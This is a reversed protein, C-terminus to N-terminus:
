YCRSHKLRLMRVCLTYRIMTHHVDPTTLRQAVNTMASDDVHAAQAVPSIRNEDRGSIISLICGKFVLRKNNNLHSKVSCVQLRRMTRRTTLEKVTIDRPHTGFLTEVDSPHLVKVLQSKM